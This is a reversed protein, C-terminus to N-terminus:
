HTPVHIKERPSRARKAAMVLPVCTTADDVIAVCDLCQFCEAYDIRGARDIAQYRCRVACLQCPSGCEVRRPIWDWRRLRGLLALGAGLPCLYRCYGKYVALSLGLMAVAYLNFPWSRVFMLTIATKFPEVEVLRDTLAPSLPAAVLLVGLVAYKLGLLRRHLPWPVRIERLGLRRGAAGVLEQLAGFPCLWGCFSGRGWILLTAFTFLWVVVTFPDHLFFALSDGAVLAKDLALLNVISLQGQGYWGVFGLTVALMALRLPTLRSPPTVAWSQRALVLALAALFVLLGGIEWPESTWAILWQPLDVEAKPAEFWDAALQYTTTFDHAASASYLMGGDRRVRIGLDWPTAPDFGLRTDIRLVLAQAFRPLGPQFDTEVDADRLNVPFGQQHISMLDPVSNRVFNEGTISYPGNALVLVPEEYSEVHRAVRRRGEETLLAAAITPVGIDAYWLDLFLGDPDADAADAAFQTGAFGAAVDRNTLHLHNLLGAAVLANWDMAQRVDPKPRSAPKPSVGAMRERAVKLASALVTENIIRVSATAKTVGDIYTNASDRRDDNHANGVKINTAVSKGAYQRVFENMPEVGLGDVFVPENQSLVRVDMFTGAKDVTILLDIPTGSFGPIPALDVSEFVYGIMAGGGDLLTWIPLAADRTGLQMPPTILGALDREALGARAPPNGALLWALALGIM